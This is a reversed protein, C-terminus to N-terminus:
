GLFPEQHSRDWIRISATSWWAYRGQVIQKGHKFTLIVRVSTTNRYVLAPMRGATGLAGRGRRCLIALPRSEIAISQCANQSVSRNAIVTDAMRSISPRGIAQHIANERHRQFNRTSATTASGMTM